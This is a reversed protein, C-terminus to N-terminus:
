SNKELWKTFDAPLPRQQGSGACIFIALDLLVVM